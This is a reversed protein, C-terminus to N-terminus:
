PNRTALVSEGTGEAAESDPAEVKILALDNIWDRGVVTAGGSYPNGKVHLSACERWYVGGDAAEVEVTVVHNNTIIYGTPNVVFGSGTSAALAGHSVVGAMVCWVIGFSLKLAVGGM